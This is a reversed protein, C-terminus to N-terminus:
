SFFGVANNNLMKQFSVHFIDSLHTLQKENLVDPTHPELLNGPTVSATISEANAALFSKTIDKQAELREVGDTAGAAITAPITDSATGFSFTDATATGDVERAQFPAADPADSWDTAAKAAYAVANAATGNHTIGFYFLVAISVVFFYSSSPNRCSGNGSKVSRTVYADDKETTSINRDDASPLSSSTEM